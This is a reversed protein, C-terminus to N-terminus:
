KEEVEEPYAYVVIEELNVDIVKFGSAHAAQRARIYATGVAAAYGLEFPVLINSTERNGETDGFVVLGFYYPRLEPESDQGIDTLADTRATDEGSDIGM